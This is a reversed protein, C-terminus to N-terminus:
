SYRVAYTSNGDKGKPIKPVQESLEDHEAPYLSLTGEGIPISRWLPFYPTLEEYNGIRDTLYQYTARSPLVVAGGSIRRQLLLLCIKNVSRHSSSVNGTEWEVLYPLGTSTPRLIDCDGTQKEEGIPTVAQEEKWGCRLVEILYRKFGNKIPVVGNGWSEKPRDEGYLRIRRARDEKTPSSKEPFISFKDSGPPWVVHRIATIIEEQIAAWEASSCFPGSKLLHNPTLPKMLAATAPTTTAPAGLPAASRQVSAACLEPPM